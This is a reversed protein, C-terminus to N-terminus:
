TNWAQQLSLEVSNEMTNVNADEEDYIRNM